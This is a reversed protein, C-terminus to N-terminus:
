SILRGDEITIKRQFSKAIQHDHTVVVLTSAFEKALEQLLGIVKTSNESDLNGTPEDCLILKPKLILARIINIRQQEGGSVQYPYKKLCHTVGLFKALMSVLEEYQAVEKGSIKVPLFINEKCSISPLLFHFQFVFGINQNRFTALSEDNMDNLVEDFVSVIGSSPHDLAGLLYLLTSKGSGSSGLLVCQEQSKLELNLGKLVDVDGFSKKVNDLIIM